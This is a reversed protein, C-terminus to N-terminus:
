AAAADILLFARTAEAGMAARGRGLLEAIRGGEVRLFKMAEQNDSSNQRLYEALRDVADPAADKVARRRANSGNRARQAIRELGSASFAENIRLGAQEIIAAVALSEGAAAFPERMHRTPAPEDSRRTSGSRPQGSEDIGSLLEKWSWNGSPAQAGSDHEGV